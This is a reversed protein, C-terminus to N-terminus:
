DRSRDHSIEGSHGEQLSVTGVTNQTGRGDVGLDMPSQWWRRPCLCQRCIASPDELIAEKQEEPRVYREM